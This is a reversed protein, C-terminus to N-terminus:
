VEPTLAEPQRRLISIEEAVLNGITTMHERIFFHNGPLRIVRCRATTRDRWASLAAPPTWPDDRGGIALIPTSLRGFSARYRTALRFDNRLVGILLERLEPDAFAAPDAGDAVMRRVIEDDDVDSPIDRNAADASLRGDQGSLVLLDPLPAGRREFRACLEAALTAGMSHGFLVFPRDVVPVLAREVLAVLAAPDDM